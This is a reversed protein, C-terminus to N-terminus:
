DSYNIQAMCWEWDHLRRNTWILARFTSSCQLICYNCTCNAWGKETCINPRCTFFKEQVFVPNLVTKKPPPKDCNTSLHNGIRKKTTSTTCKSSLLIEFHIQEKHYQRLSVRLYEKICTKHPHRNHCNWKQPLQTSTIEFSTYKKGDEWVQGWCSM